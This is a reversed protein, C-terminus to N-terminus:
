NAYPSTYGIFGQFASSAPGSQILDGTSAYIKGNIVVPAQTTWTSTSIFERDNLSDPQNPNRPDATVRIFYGVQGYHQQPDVTLKAFVYKNDTYQRGHSLGVATTTLDTTADPQQVERWDAWTAGCDVSRRDWLSHDAKEVFVDLKVYEGYNNTNQAILQPDGVFVGGLSPLWQGDKNVYLAGDSGRVAVFEHEGSGCSYSVAASPSSTLIGHLDSVAGSSVDISHLHNDDGRFYTYLSGYQNWTSSSPLGAYHVLGQATQLYSDRGKWMMGDGTPTYVDVYAGFTPGAPTSAGAASNSALSALAAAVATVALVAIAQLGRRVPRHIM